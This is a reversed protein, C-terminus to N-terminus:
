EPERDSPISRGRIAESQLASEISIAESSRQLGRIIMAPLNGRHGDSSIVERMAHLYVAEIDMVNRLLHSSAPSRKPKGKEAHQNGGEDPSRWRIHM